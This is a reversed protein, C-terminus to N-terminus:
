PRVLLVHYATAGPVPLWDLPLSRAGDGCHERRTCFGNHAQISALPVVCLRSCTTQVTSVRGTGRVVGTSGVSRGLPSVVGVEYLSAAPPLHLVAIAVALVVWPRRGSRYGRAMATSDRVEM